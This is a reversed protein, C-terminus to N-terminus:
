EQARRPHQTPAVRELVLEVTPQTVPDYEFVRFTEESWFIEDTSPRWGFSGTHSLRQAETMYAQRRQLELTMEEQETVDMATGIISKLIGNKLVGGLDFITVRNHAM